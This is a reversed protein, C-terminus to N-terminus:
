RGREERRMPMADITAFLTETPIPADRTLKAGGDKGILVVRFARDPLGLRQRLDRAAADSGLAEVTVLDREAMGAGAAAAADRQVAVRRDAADPASIVLIRSKWRYAGLPDEAARVPGGVSLAGIGALLAARAITEGSM